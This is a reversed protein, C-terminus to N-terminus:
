RLDIPKFSSKLAVDYWYDEAEKAPIESAVSQQNNAKNWDQIKEKSFTYMGIPGQRLCAKPTLCGLIAPEDVYFYGKYKQKFLVWNDSQHKNYFLAWCYAIIEMDTLKDWGNNKDDEALKIIQRLYTRNAQAQECSVEYKQLMDPVVGRLDMIGDKTVTYEGDNLPFNFILHLRKRDYANVKRISYSKGWIRIQKYNMAADNFDSEIDLVLRDLIRQSIKFGWMDDPGFEDESEESDTYFTDFLCSIAYAAHLMFPQDSIEWPEHMMIDLDSASYPQYKNM